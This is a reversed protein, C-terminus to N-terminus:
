TMTCYHDIGFAVSRMMSSVPGILLILLHCPIANVPRTKDVVGTRMDHALELHRTYQVICHVIVTICQCVCAPVPKKGLQRAPHTLRRPKVRRISSIQFSYEHVISTSRFPIWSVCSSYTSRFRERTATRSTISYLNALM